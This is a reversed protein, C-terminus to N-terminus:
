APWLFGESKTGPPHAQPNQVTVSPATVIHNDRGPHPLPVQCGQWSRCRVQCHPASKGVEQETLPQPLFVSGSQWSATHSWPGTMVHWCAVLSEGRRRRLRRCRVRWLGFACESWRHAGLQSFSGCTLRLRYFPMRDASFNQQRANGASLSGTSPPCIMFLTTM